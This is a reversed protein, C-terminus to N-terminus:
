STTSGKSPLTMPIIVKFVIHLGKERQKGAKMFVSTAEAM